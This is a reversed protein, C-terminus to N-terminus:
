VEKALKRKYHDAMLFCVGSIIFPFTIILLVEISFLVSQNMNYNLIFIPVSLISGLAIYIIGGWRPWKWAIILIIILVFSPILHILFALLQQNFTLNSDFSDLAFLSVVLIGLIAIIKAMWQFLSVKKKM